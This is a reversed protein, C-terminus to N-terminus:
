IIKMIVKLIVYNGIFIPANRGRGNGSLLGASILHYMEGGPLPHLPLIVIDRDLYQAAMELWSHDVWTGKRTMKQCWEVVKFNLISPCLQGSRIAKKVEM